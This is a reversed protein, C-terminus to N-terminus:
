RKSLGASVGYRLTRISLKRVGYPKNYEPWPFNCNVGKEQPVLGTRESPRGVPIIAVWLKKARPGIM